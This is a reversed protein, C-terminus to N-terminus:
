DRPVPTVAPEKVRVVRIYNYLARTYHKGEVAGVWLTNKTLLAPVVANYTADHGDNNDWAMDSALLNGNWSFGDSSLKLTLKHGTEGVQKKGFSKSGPGPDLADVQLKDTAPKKNTADTHAPYYCQFSGKGWNLGGEDYAFAFINDMGVTQNKPDTGSLQGEITRVFVCQSVDMGTEIFDGNSFHLNTIQIGPLTNSIVYQQRWGAKNGSSPLTSYWASAHDSPTGSSGGEQWWPDNWQHYDGQDPYESWAGDANPRVNLLMIQNALTQSVYETGDSGRATVYFQYEKYRNTETAWADDGIINRLYIDRTYSILNHTGDELVMTQWAGDSAKWRLTVNALPITKSLNGISIRIPMGKDPKSESPLSVSCRTLQTTALSFPEEFTSVTGAANRLEIELKMNKKDTELDEPVLGLAALTPIAITQETNYQMGSPMTTVPIDRELYNGDHDTYCLKLSAYVFASASSFFHLKVKQEDGPLVLPVPLSISGDIYGTKDIDRVCRSRTMKVGKNTCHLKKGETEYAWAVKNQEHTIEAESMNTTVQGVMGRDFYTRSPMQKKDSYLNGSKDCTFYEEPLYSYMLLLESQNPFRYGEPCYPNYGLATVENNINELEVSFADESTDGVNINRSQVQTELYLCNSINNQDHYPLETECLERLSIPNLNDFYFTYSGDNNQNLKFYRDIEQKYPAESIDKLVGGDNYTGINRICRVTEGVAAEM